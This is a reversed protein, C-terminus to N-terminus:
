KVETCECRTYPNNGKLKRDGTLCMCGYATYMYDGNYAFIEKPTKYHMSVDHDCNECIKVEYEETEQRLITYTM